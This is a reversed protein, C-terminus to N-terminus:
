RKRNTQVIRGGTLGSGSLYKLAAQAPESQLVNAGQKVLHHARHFVNKLGSFLSGGEVTPQIVETSVAGDELAVLIENKSVVALNPLAMNESIQVNGQNVALVNLYWLVDPIEAGCRTYNSGSYKVDMQFMLSSGSEGGYGSEFNAGFDRVPDFCFGCGALVWEAYPIDSGTNRVTMRWIDLSNMEALFSSGQSGWVVKLGTITAGTDAINVARAPAQPNISGYVLKPMTTLKLSNSTATLEVATPKLCSSVAPILNEYTYTCVAPISVIDPNVTFYEVHLTPSSLGVSTVIAVAPDGNIELMNQLLNSTDFLMNISFSQINGLAVENVLGASLPSILLPEYIKFVYTAVANALTYSVPYFSARSTGDSNCYYSLPNNSGTLATQVADSGLTPCKDLMSPFLSALEKRQKKTYVYPGITNMYQQPNVSFRSNNLQLDLTTCVRHLPNSRFACNIPLTGDNIIGDMVGEAATEAASYGAMVCPHAGADPITVTATYEVILTRGILVRQPTIIGNWQFNNPSATTAPIHRYQVQSAGVETFQTPYDSISIRPDLSIKNEIQAM